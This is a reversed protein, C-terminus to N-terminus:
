RVSGGSTFSWLLGWRVVETVAVVGIVVVDIVVDVSVHALNTVWRKVQGSSGRRGTGGDFKWIENDVVEVAGLRVGRDRPEIRTKWGCPKDPWQGKMEANM